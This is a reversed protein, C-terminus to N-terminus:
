PKQSRLQQIRNRVEQNRAEDRSYKLFLEFEEIAKEKLGKREYVLGLYLYAPAFDPRISTAQSLEVFAEDLSNRQIYVQGLEYHALYSKPDVETAKKYIKISKETKGLKFYIYAIDHYLDPETAGLKEAKELQALAEKLNGQSLLAQGLNVRAPSYFPNLRIVRQFLGIAQDTKGQILYIVGLTHYAGMSNPNIEIAQDLLKEARAYDRAAIYPSAAHILSDDPFLHYIEARIKEAEEFRNQQHYYDVLAYRGMLSRNLDLDLLNRFREASRGTNANLLLWPAASLFVTSILVTTSYKRSQVLNLFLYLGLVTYGLGLASFLDWDRGAGLTPNLLFHYLLQAITVIILFITIRNKFKLIRKYVMFLGLILVLGSSSILLHQNLIDVLHAPSFLTYAPADLKGKLLPIVIQLLDPNIRWVYYVSFGLVFAFILLYPLTKKLSFVMEGNEKKLAVLFFLSPLLYASSFHFSISLACLLIPLLIKVKGQLYRLSFYLYAFIGVYTLTYHEAYGLFLETTGSFLFLSFIFLRDFKDESITRSLFLLVFVFIGGALISLGAYVFEASPPFFLKLFKYLYLHTFVELPEYGIRHFKELSLQSIYAYGDGLFNTRTRLLWFLFMSILSFFLYGIVEKKSFIKQFFALIQELLKYVRSNVWPVLILLGPLTFVFRVWLPFYALHNIGWLRSKPFFSSVFHALLLLGCLLAILHNFKSTSDPAPSTEEPKKDM